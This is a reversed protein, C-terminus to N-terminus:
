IEIESKVLSASISRTRRINSKLFNLIVSLQLHVSSGSFGEIRHPQTQHQCGTECHADRIDFEGFM